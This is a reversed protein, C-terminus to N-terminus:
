RASLQRFVYLLDEFSIILDAEDYQEIIVEIAEADFEEEAEYQDSGKISDWWQKGLLTM